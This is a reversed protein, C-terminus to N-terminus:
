NNLSLFSALLQSQVWIPALRLGGNKYTSMLHKYQEKIQALGHNIHRWVEFFYYLMDFSTLRIYRGRWVLWHVICPTLHSSQIWIKTTNTWNNYISGSKSVNWTTIIIIIQKRRFSLSTLRRYNTAKQLAMKNAQSQKIGEPALGNKELGLNCVICVFVWSKSKQSMTAFSFIHKHYLNTIFIIKLTIKRKAFMYWLLAINSVIQSATMSHSLKFPSQFLTRLFKQPVSTLVLAVYPMSVTRVPSYVMVATSCTITQSPSFIVLEGCWQSSLAPNDVEIQTEM